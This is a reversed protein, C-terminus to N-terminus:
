DLGHKRFFERTLNPFKTAVKCYDPIQSVKKISSISPAAVALHCHGFNYEALTLVQSKHEQIIDTGVLGLDAAGNEVYVPVDTPRVLLVEIHPHNTNFLLKRTQDDYIIDAKALLDKSGSLLSGKPIAIRYSYEAM